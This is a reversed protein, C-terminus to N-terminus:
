FSLGQHASAMQSTSLLGMQSTAVTESLVSGSCQWEQLFKERVTSPVTSMSLFGPPKYLSTAPPPAQSFSLALQKKKEGNWSTFLRVGKRWWLFLVPM